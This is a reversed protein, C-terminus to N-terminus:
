SAQSKRGALDAAEGGFSRQHAFERHVWAVGLFFREDALLRTIITHSFQRLDDLRQTGLLAFKLRLQGLNAGRAFGELAYDARRGWRTLLRLEL